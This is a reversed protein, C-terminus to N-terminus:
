YEYELKRIAEARVCIGATTIHEVFWSNVGNVSPNTTETLPLGEDMLTNVNNNQVASNLYATSDKGLQEDTIGPAIFLMVDKGSTGKGKLYSCSVFEIQLGNMDFIINELAQAVTGTGAGVQQYNTLPVVKSKLYNIADLPAVIVLPKLMNYSLNQIARIESAVFELLEGAIYSSMKTAGASDAPLASTTGAQNFLGEKKNAGFFTLYAKRQAIAQFTLARKLDVESINGGMKSFKAESDVTTQFASKIKYYPAEIQGITAENKHENNMWTSATGVTAASSVNDITLGYLADVGRSGHKSNLGIAKKYEINEFLKGFVNPLVANPFIRKLNGNIVM